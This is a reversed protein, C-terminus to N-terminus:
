ASRILASMGRAHFGDSGLGDCPVAVLAFCHLIIASTGSESQKCRKGTTPLEHQKSNRHTTSVVAPTVGLRWTMSAVWHVAPANHM